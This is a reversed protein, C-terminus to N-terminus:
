VSSRIRILGEDAVIRFFLIFVSWVFLFGGWVLGMGREGGGGCPVRVQIANDIATDFVRDAFTSPEGERLQSALTEEIWTMEKTLRLISANAVTDEFNADDVGDGADALAMRLPFTMHNNEM